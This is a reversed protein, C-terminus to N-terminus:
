IIILLLLDIQTDQRIEYEYKIFVFKKKFKILNIIYKNFNSKADDNINKIEPVQNVIALAEPKQEECNEYIGNNCLIIKM